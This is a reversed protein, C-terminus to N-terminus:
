NGTFYNHSIDIIRLQPFGFTTQPYHLPGHSENSCLVLAQLKQLFNLWVPFIDNIINAEVNIVELSYCGKLSTPLKGMLQNQDIDLSRLMKADILFVEM